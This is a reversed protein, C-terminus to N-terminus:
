ARASPRASVVEYWRLLIKCEDPVPLKCFRAFDITCLTTIDATSYNDGAVFQNDALQADIKEFFIRTRLAGREIPAPIQPLANAYGAIARDTFTRRSNRFNESVAQLGEFEAIREWMDILAMEKPTRGMLPPDPHLAEFYRCIAMAEGICAGDDLELMPVRRHPHASLFEPRLDGSNPVGVDETPVEIGKEALYIRVRRPNPAAGWDYLKM